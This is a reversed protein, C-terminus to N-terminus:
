ARVPPPTASASGRVSKAAPGGVRAPHARDRLSWRPSGGVPWDRRYKVFPTRPGGPFLANARSEAVQMGAIRDAQRCPTAAHYARLPIPSSIPECQSLFGHLDKM